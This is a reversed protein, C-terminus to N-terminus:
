SLRSLALILGTQGVLAAIGLALHFSASLRRKTVVLIGALGLAAAEPFYLFGISLAALGAFAATAGFAIWVIAGGMPSDLLVASAAALALMPIEILYIGPLPWMPQRSAIVPWLIGTVLVCALAAAIALFSEASGSRPMTM